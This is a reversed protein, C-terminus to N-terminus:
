GPSRRGPRRSARFGRDSLTEASRAGDIGAAKLLEDPEAVLGTRLNNRLTRRRRGFAVGLCAHLRREDLESLEALPRRKWLTVTSDVKPPPRFARPDWTPLCLEIEFCSRRRARDATRLGQWRSARDSAPRGEAQFMLVARDVAARERILKMAIPKSLNYPLNGAIALGSGDRDDLAQRVESLTLGLVDQEFLVLREESFRERLAGALDRDIEVAGIRGAAEILPATLVGEGPGIELVPDGPAVALAEVIRGVASRDVLFNQGFRKRPRHTM